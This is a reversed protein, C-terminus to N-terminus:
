GRAKEWLWPPLPLRWYEGRKADFQRIRIGTGDDTVEIDRTPSKM